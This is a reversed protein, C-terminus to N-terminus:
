KGALFNHICCAILGRNGKENHAALVNLITLYEVRTQGSLCQFCIIILGCM